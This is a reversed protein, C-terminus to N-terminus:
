SRIQGTETRQEVMIVEFMISGDRAQSVSSDGVPKRITGDLLFRDYDPQYIFLGDGNLYGLSKLHTKSFLVQISQENTEGSETQNTIPWSRMYNYNVICRLPIDITSNINIDEGYRNISPDVKRRWIITAEAFSDFADTGILQNYDAWDKDGIMDMSTIKVVVLWEVMRSPLKICAM